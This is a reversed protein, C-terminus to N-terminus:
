VFKTIDLNISQPSIAEAIQEDAHHALDLDRVSEYRNFKRNYVIRIVPKLLDQNQDMVIGVRGSELAVVSGVPFIGICSAFRQVLERDFHAPSWEILKKMAQTPEWAAKYVRVSTLADYVDVIASMRGVQSIEDGKLGKPYGTGDMREHHCMTVHHAIQSVQPIGEIMEGSYDVHKRMHNFEEKDLKGPKNLVDQRVMTKGLDHILGGIALEKLDDQSMQMERGFTTLLAAVSVCHMFTYEDKTKIRAISTLAHPNRLVTAVTQEALPSVAAVEVQKGSRAAQMLNKIVSTAENFLKAAKPREDIAAVKPAVQEDEALSELEAQLQGELEDIDVATEIDLGQDTDIYVHRLGASAIKQIEAEEELLFQNRVFPHELWDADLDHIYMGVILESTAVRRIM